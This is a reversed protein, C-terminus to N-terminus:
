QVHCVSSIAIQASVPLHITHFAAPASSNSLAAVKVAPVAEDACIM